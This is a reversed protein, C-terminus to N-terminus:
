LNSVQFLPLGAMHIDNIINKMGNRANLEDEATHQSGAHMDEKDVPDGVIQITWLIYSVSNFIRKGNLKLGPVNERQLMDGSTIDQHDTENLKEDQQVDYTQFDSVRKVTHFSLVIKLKWSRMLSDGQLLGITDTCHWRCDYADLSDWWTCQVWKGKSSWPGCWQPAYTKM